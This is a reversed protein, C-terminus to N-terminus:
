MHVYLHLRSLLVYTGNARCIYGNRQLSYGGNCQCSYGHANSGDLVCTHSCMGYIIQNDCPDGTSIYLLIMIM